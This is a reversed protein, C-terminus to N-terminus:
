VWGQKTRQWKKYKQDNEWVGREKWRERKKKRRRRDVRIFTCPFLMLVICYHRRLALRKRPLDPHHISHAQPLHIGARPAIQVRWAYSMKVSLQYTYIHSYFPSSGENVLGQNSIPWNIKRVIPREAISFFINILNSESLSLSFPGWSGIQDKWDIRM